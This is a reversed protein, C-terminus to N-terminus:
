RKKLKDKLLDGLTGMSEPPTNKKQQQPRQNRGGKEKAKAAVVTATEEATNEGDMSALSLSLRKKDIDISNVRVEITQGESVAERPHNIRRGGGLTSIHALGDIGPELTIFAGFPALRAVTGTHCTGEPYKQLVSDWPDPMARKLSFSYKDQEWDLKMVEVEVEQGVALVDNIDTTRDWSIESIPILGELSNDIDVFAGFDRISTITGSVTQNEKLTKQLEEKREKREEELLVRHSLIINRGNERYEIIKFELQRDVYQETDETRKLSIQSYPCFCRIGGVKVEFGGKVEKAISGEVPIGGRYADELHAQAAKAGIKTTFLLGNKAASLFYAQLTDGEKVTLNGEEDLLEQKDLCGESKGGLDIFVADNSIKVVVAEIKQGPTLREQSVDTQGFLEEFSAEGTDTDHENGTASPNQEKQM